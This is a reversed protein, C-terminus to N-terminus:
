RLDSHTHLRIEAFYHMDVEANSRVYFQIPQATLNQLQRSFIAPLRQSSNRQAIVQEGHMVFKCRRNQSTRM